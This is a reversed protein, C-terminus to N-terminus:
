AAPDAPGNTDFRDIHERLVENLGASLLEGARDHDVVVGDVTVATGPAWEGSAFVMGDKAAPPATLGVEVLHRVVTADWEGVDGDSFTLTLPGPMTVTVM